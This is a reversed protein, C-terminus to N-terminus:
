RDLGILQGDSRYVLGNIDHSGSLTGIVTAAGTTLNITFLQDHGSDGANSGYATGNPAFALGGEFVFGIGLPGVLTAAATTPNIKYLSPNAAASDTFGYLTGNPAFQIDALFPVGTNGVLTLAANSTSVQYLNGNDTDVALLPGARVGDALVGV